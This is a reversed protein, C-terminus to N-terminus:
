SPVLEKLTSTSNMALVHPGAPLFAIVSISCPSISLRQFLDLPAGMAMQLIAKIPDAHSVVVITKGRNAQALEVVTDYARAAMESFSEGNPFRFLSPTKQITAWEKKKALVSLKKGTWDGFDCEILGPDTTVPVGLAKAIPQATEKTRELPSAYVAKPKRPLELIRAAAAEAQAKGEDSLHLGRARGPLITGTSPTKGHRVLLVTTM